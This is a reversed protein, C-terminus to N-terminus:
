GPGCSVRNLFLCVFLCVHFVFFFFAGSDTLYVEKKIYSDLSIQVITILMERGTRGKGEM